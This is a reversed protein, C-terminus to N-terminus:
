LLKLEVLYIGDSKRGICVKNVSFLLEALEFFRAEGLNRQKYGLLIRPSSKKSGFFRLTELLGEFSDDNNYLLESGVILDIHGQYDITQIHEKNGWLLPKVTIRNEVIDKNLEVNEELVSLTSSRSSSSTPTTTSSTGNGKQIEEFDVPADTLIVEINKNLSAIGIGLLGIGSGLELVKIRNKEKLLKPLYEAKQLRELMPESATPWYKLGTLDGVGPTTKM